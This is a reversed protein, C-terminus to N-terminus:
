SESRYILRNAQPGFMLMIIAPLWLFDVVIRLTSDVLGWGHLWIYATVLTDAMLLVAVITRGHFESGWWLAFVSLVILANAIIFAHMPRETFDGQMTIDIIIQGITSFLLLAFAMVRAVFMGYTKEKM